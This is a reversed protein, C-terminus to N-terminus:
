LFSTRCDGGLLFCSSGLSVAEGIARELVLLGLRGSFLQIRGDELFREWALGFVFDQNSQALLPSCLPGSPTM